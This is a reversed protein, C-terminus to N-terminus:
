PDPRWVCGTRRPAVAGAGDPKVLALAQEAAATRVTDGSRPVRNRACLVVAAMDCAPRAALGAHARTLTALAWCAPAANARAAVAGRRLHVMDVLRQQQQLFGDSV